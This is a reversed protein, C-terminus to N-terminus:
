CGQAIGIKPRHYQSLNAFRSQGSGNIGVDRASMGVRRGEVGIVLSRQFADVARDRGGYEKFARTPLGILRRM